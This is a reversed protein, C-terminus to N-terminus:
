CICWRSRLSIWVKRKGASGLGVGVTAKLAVPGYADIADSIEEARRAVEQDPTWNDTDLARDIFKKDTKCRVQAYKEGALYGQYTAWATGAVILVARVVGFQGTPDFQVPQTAM